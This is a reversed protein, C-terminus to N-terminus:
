FQATLTEMCATAVARDPDAAGPMTAWGAAMVVDRRRYSVTDQLTALTQTYLPDQKSQIVCIPALAAVVQAQAEDSAMREATHGTVWGGWSFGVTALAIAGIAAGYLGPKLWQPANM